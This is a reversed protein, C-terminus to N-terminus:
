INIVLPKNTPEYAETCISANMFQTDDNKFQIRCWKDYPLCESGSYTELLEKKREEDTSYPKVVLECGASEIEKAKKMTLELAEVPNM